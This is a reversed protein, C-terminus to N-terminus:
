GIHQTPHEFSVQIAVMVYPTVEEVKSRIDEMNYTEPLKDVMDDMVQKAREELSTAGEGSACLVLLPILVLKYSSATSPRLTTELCYLLRRSSASVSKCPKCSVCVSHRAVGCSRTCTLCAWQHHASRLLEDWEMLMLM